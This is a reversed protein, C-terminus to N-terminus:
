FGRNSERDEFWFGSSSYRNYFEVSMRVDWERTALRYVMENKM